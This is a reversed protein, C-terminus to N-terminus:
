RLTFSPVKVDDLAAKVHKPVETAAYGRVMRAAKLLGHTDHAAIKELVAPMFSNKALGGFAGSLGVGSFILKARGGIAPARLRIFFTRVHNQAGEMSIMFIGNSSRLVALEIVFDSRDFDLTNDISRLRRLIHVKLVRVDNRTTVRCLLAEYDWPADFVGRWLLYFGNPMMEQSIRFRHGVVMKRMQAGFEFESLAVAFEERSDFFWEMPLSLKQCFQYLLEPRPMSQGSLYRNFQTRNVGILACAQKVSGVMNVAYRLKQRFVERLEPLPTVESQILEKKSLM